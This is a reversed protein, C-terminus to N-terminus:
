VAMRLARGNLNKLGQISKGNTPAQNRHYIILNVCISYYTQTSVTLSVKADSKDSMRQHM